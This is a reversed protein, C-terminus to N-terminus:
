RGQTIPQRNTDDILKASVAGVVITAWVVVGLAGVVGAGVVGPVVVGLAGPVGAGPVDLFVPGPVPV